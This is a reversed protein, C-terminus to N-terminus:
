ILNKSVWYLLLLFMAKCFNKSAYIKEQRLLLKHSFLMRIIEMLLLTTQRSTNQDHIRYLLLPKDIYYFDSVKAMRVFLEYDPCVVFSTNSYGAKESLSKRFLVSPCPVFNGRLMLQYSNRIVGSARKGFWSPIERPKRLGDNFLQLMDTFVFDVTEYDNLIRVQEELKTPLWCDDQDIFAIYEGISNDIGFNRADSLGGNNKYFYKFRQDKLGTIVDKIFLSEKERSSGDDVLVVEFHKYTQNLISLLTEEIYASGNYYPLIVSVSLFNLGVVVQLHYASPWCGDLVM